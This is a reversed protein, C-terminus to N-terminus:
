RRKPEAGALSGMDAKNNQKITENDGLETKDHFKLFYKGDDQKEGQVINKILFQSVDNLKTIEEEANDCTRNAEFGDRIQKRAALLVQNDQAFSLKTARLAGRYAQLAKSM